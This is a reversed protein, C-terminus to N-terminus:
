TEVPTDDRFCLEYEGRTLEVWGAAVGISLCQRVREEGAFIADAVVIPRGSVDHSLSVGPMIATVTEGDNTPYGLLSDLQARVDDVSQDSPAVFFRHTDTM